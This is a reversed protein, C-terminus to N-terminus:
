GDETGGAEIGVLFNLPTGVNCVLTAIQHNSPGHHAHTRLGRVRCLSGVYVGSLVAFFIPVSFSLVALMLLYAVGWTFFRLLARAHDKGSFAQWWQRKPPTAFPQPNACCHDTSGGCTSCTVQSDQLIQM